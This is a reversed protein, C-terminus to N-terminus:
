FKLSYSLNVARIGKNDPIVTIRIHDMPNQSAYYTGNKKALATDYQFPRIHGYVVGATQILLGAVLLGPSPEDETYGTTYTNGTSYSSWSAEYNAYQVAYAITLITGTLEAGGVILGGLWDGMTFSGAGYIWNLFGAGVKRGTTYNLGNPLGTGTNQEAGAMLQKIQNDGKVNESTQVQVVATQAEIARFRIRYNAGMNELSGSIITKAGFQKGILQASEKSVEGSGQQYVLEQQILVLNQRDVVTVKGGSVLATILEDLVFNSLRESPANFNLVAVIDGNTLKNEIAKAGSKIADDLSVVQQAHIVGTAACLTLVLFLISKKMM